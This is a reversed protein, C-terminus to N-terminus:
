INKSSKKDGSDLESYTWSNELFVLSKAILKTMKNFIFLIFQYNPTYFIDKDLIVFKRNKEFHSVSAGRLM